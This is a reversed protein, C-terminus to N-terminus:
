SELMICVTNFILRTPSKMAPTEWNSVLALLAKDQVGNAVATTPDKALIQSLPTNIVKRAYKKKYRPRTYTKRFSEQKYFLDAVIQVPLHLHEVPTVDRKKIYQTHPEAETKFSSFTVSTDEHGSKCCWLQCAQPLHILTRSAAM